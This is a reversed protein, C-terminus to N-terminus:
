IIGSLDLCAQSSQPQFPLPIFGSKLPRNLISANYVSRIRSFAHHQPEAAKGGKCFLLSDAVEGRHAHCVSGKWVSGALAEATLSELWCGTHASLSFGFAVHSHGSACGPCGLRSPLFVYGVFYVQLASNEPCRLCQSTAKDRGPLGWQEAPFDQM